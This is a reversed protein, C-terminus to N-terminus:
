PSEVCFLFFLPRTPGTERETLCRVRPPEALRPAAPPSAACGGLATLLLLSALLRTRRAM